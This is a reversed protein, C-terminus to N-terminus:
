RPLPTPPSRGTSLPHNQARLHVILAKCHSPYQSIPLCPSSLPAAMRQLYPIAPVVKGVLAM